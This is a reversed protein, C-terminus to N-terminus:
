CDIETIEFINQHKQLIPCKTTEIQAVQYYRSGTKKQRNIDDKQQNEM